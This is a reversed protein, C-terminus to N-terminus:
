DSLFQPIGLSPHGRPRYAFHGPLIQAAICHRIPADTIRTTSSLPLRHLSLQRVPVEVMWLTLHHDRDTSRQHFQIAAQGNPAAFLTREVAEAWLAPLKVEEALERRACRAPQSDDAPDMTGGFTDFQPYSSSSDRHYSAYLQREGTQPSRPPQVLRQLGPAQHRSRLTSSTVLTNSPTTLGLGASDFAPDPSASADLVTYVRRRELSVLERESQRLDAEARLNIPRRTSRM